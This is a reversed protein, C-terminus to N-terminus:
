GPQFGGADPHALGNPQRGTGRHPDAGQASSDPQCPWPALGAIVTAAAGPRPRAPLPPERGRGHGSLGVSIPAEDTSAERVSLAGTTTGSATPAERRAGPAAPARRR